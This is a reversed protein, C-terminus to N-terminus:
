RAAPAPPKFRRRVTEVLVTLGVALLLLAATGVGWAIWVVTPAASGVWQLAVHAIDFAAEMLQQWGPLWVEMWAPHPLEGVRARGEDVWRPDLTLLGHVGWCGLSWLAIALATLLWIAIVM